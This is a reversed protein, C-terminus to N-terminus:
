DPVKHPRGMRVNFVGPSFNAGVLRAGAFWPWNEALLSDERVKVVAPAELWPTHWVRFLLRSKGRVTYATYREMLWETLSGGEAPHYFPDEADVLARYSFAAGSAPDTVRGSIEGRNWDHRYDIRALHYPLGFLHPGLRLSLANDLHEILFFIGPEGNVVVYTRVNLFGHTAIPRFLLEGLRGGRAPKMGRMTFAVLSVYARGDRLNIPYPVGKALEVPDVEYHIMLVREWDDTLLPEGPDALMRAKAASSLSGTPAPTTFAALM